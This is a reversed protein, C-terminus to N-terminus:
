DAGGDSSSSVIADLVGPMKDALIDGIEGLRLMLDITM